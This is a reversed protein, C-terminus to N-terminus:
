IKIDQIKLPCPVHDWLSTLRRTKVWSRTEQLDTPKHRKKLYWHTQPVQCTRMTMPLSEMAPLRLSPDRPRERGGRPSNSGPRTMRDLACKKFQNSEQVDAMFIM